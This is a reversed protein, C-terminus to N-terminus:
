SLLGEPDLKLLNLFKGSKSRSSLYSTNIKGQKTVLQWMNQLKFCHM